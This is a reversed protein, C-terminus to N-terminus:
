VEQDVRLSEGGASAQREARLTLLGLIAGTCTWLVAQGGLSAMRFDWVVGAPIGEPVDTAPLAVFATGIVLLYSAGVILHRNHAEAGWAKLRRSAAVAAICAAVSVVVLFLYAATSVGMTDPNGVGPPSAPYKLFPVLFFAGFGTLATKMSREWASGNIRRSMVFLIIGLVGGLALGYLGAALVMGLHQEGRTFVEEAAHEGSSTAHQLRIAEDLSPKGVLLLFLGAATGAVLGSGLGRRLSAGAGNARESSAPQSRRAPRVAKGLSPGHSKM